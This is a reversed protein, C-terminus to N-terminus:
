PSTRWAAVAFLAWGVLFGLGGLPTIAGLVRVGSLALAYLSGSFLVIGALMAWGASELLASPRVTGLLGVAVLALAHYMHYRAGTEFIVLLDQPLRAKLAHAGFAGAAVSLFANVAGVVIWWRMM